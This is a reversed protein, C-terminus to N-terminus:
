SRSHSRCSVDLLYGLEPRTLKIWELKALPMEMNDVVKEGIVFKRVLKKNASCRLIRVLIFVQVPLDLVVESVWILEM